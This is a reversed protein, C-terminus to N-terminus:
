GAAEAKAPLLIRGRVSENGARDTATYEIAQPEDALTRLFAEQFTAWFTGAGGWQIRELGSVDDHARFDIEASGGLVRVRADVAPPVTDVPLERAASGIRGGADRAQAEVRVLGEGPVALEGDVARWEGGGIRVLAPISEGTADRAIVRVLPASTFWGSTSPPATTEITVLPPLDDGLGAPLRWEVVGERERWSAADVDAETVPAAAVNPAFARAAAELVVATEDRTLLGDLRASVVAEAVRDRFAAVTAPAPGRWVDDLFTGRDARARAPVGTPEGAFAIEGATARVYMHYRDEAGAWVPVFRTGAIRVEGERALETGADAQGDAATRGDLMRRGALPLDLFTTRDDRAALVGPGYTLAQVDPDDPTPEARLVRPVVVTLADGSRWARSVVIAGGPEAATEVPTGNLAVSAPGAAWSPIRISLEADLAEGDPEVRVVATDSWPYDSEVIVSAAHERWRLRAPSLMAIWLRPSGDAAALFATAEHTVHNELGTGGCCTGINDYEPLAGPDVPFMYTVEPSTDSAADRRSGLIHNLLAREAYDLYAPDQTHQFLLRALKILNYSACTEANRRGINGAVTGPSGWIESEGTGGHAFMRGPVIQSWLGVVADLYRREGTLEYEHVYGILQPLHQNAHMGTLVDEGRAGADILEDMDFMRAADLFTPEGAVASLRALTENMGGFEGAIYLSWMRQRHEHDLRSLRNTVWHGMATAVELARASGVLEHADLLGAMIKHCTYYPAWIEGYPAFGELRSFQWEGYAALFGPHSFRGTAALADQVEGLGDVIQDVKVVLEPDREGAAAISLMSLFHGAYHGRLLNATQAAEAGPYDHEGWPEEAPHGFNEWGGPPEAGHTDLGANRRFVALIRDAPYARALHLMERRARAFVSGEGLEVDGPAFAALEPAHRM